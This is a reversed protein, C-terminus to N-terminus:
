KSLHAAKLIAVFRCLHQTLKLIAMILIIIWVIMENEIFCKSISIRKKLLLFGKWISMALFAFVSMSWVLTCHMGGWKLAGGLLSVCFRLQVRPCSKGTTNSSYVSSMFSVYRYTWKGFFWVMNKSNGQIYVIPEWLDSKTLLCPLPLNSRWCEQATKRPATQSTCCCCRKVKILYFNSTSWGTQCFLPGSCELPHSTGRTQQM